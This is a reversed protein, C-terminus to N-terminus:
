RPVRARRRASLAVALAVALLTFLSAGPAPAVACGGVDAAGFGIQASTVNGAEDYLLVTVEYTNGVVLDGVLIEASGHALGTPEFTRVLRPTGSPTREHVRYGYSLLSTPSRDDTGSIVIRATHERHAVPPREDVELVPAVPDLEFRHEIWGPSVKGTLDMARFRFAHEGPETVPASLVRAFAPKSVPGDDLQWEYRLLQPPTEDDTGAVTFRAMGARVLRGPNRQLSAIPAAVDDSAPGPRFPEVGVYVGQDRVTIDDLWAYVGGAAFTAPSLPMGRLRRTAMPVVIDRMLVAMREPDIAFASDSAGAHLEMREM